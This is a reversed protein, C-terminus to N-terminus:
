QDFSLIYFDFANILFYDVRWCGSWYLISIFRMLNLTFDRIIRNKRNMYDYRFTYTIELLVLISLSHIKLSSFVAHDKLQFQVRCLFSAIGWWLGSIRWNGGVHSDEIWHGHLLTLTPYSLVKSRSFIFSGDM